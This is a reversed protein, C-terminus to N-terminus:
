FGGRCGKRRASPHLCHRVQGERYIRTISTEPAPWGKERLHFCISCVPGAEVVLGKCTLGRGTSLWHDRYRYLRDEGVEDELQKKKRQLVKYHSSCHASCRLWLVLRWHLFPNAHWPCSIFNHLIQNFMFNRVYNHCKISIKAIFVVFHPTGKWITNHGGNSFISKSANEYLKPLSRKM